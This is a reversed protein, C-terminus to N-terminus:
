RGAAVTGDTAAEDPVAGDDPVGARRARAVRLAVLGGLARLQRASDLDVLCEDAPLVLRALRPPTRCSPRQDDPTDLATTGPEAAGPRGDDSM